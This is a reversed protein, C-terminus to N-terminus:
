KSKYDTKKDENTIKHGIRFVLVFAIVISIAEIHVHYNSFGLLENVFLATGYLSGFFVIIGIIFDIIEILISKIKKM